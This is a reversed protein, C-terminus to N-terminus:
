SLTMKFPIDFPAWGWGQMLSKNHFIRIYNIDKQEFYYGYLKSMKFKKSFKM